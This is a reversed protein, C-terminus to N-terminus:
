ANSCKERKERKSISVVEKTWELMDGELAKRMVVSREKSAQYGQVMFRDRIGEREFVMRNLSACCRDADVREIVKSVVICYTGIAPHNKLIRCEVKGEFNEIQYTDM